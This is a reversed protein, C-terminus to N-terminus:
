DDGSLLISASFPISGVEMGAEASTAAGMGKRLGDGGDLRNM